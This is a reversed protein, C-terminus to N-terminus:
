RTWRTGERTDELQIGADKLQDRIEDARAFNKAKKSTNREEVLADIAENSLGNDGISDSNSKNQFWDTPDQNLIGLLEGCALLEAKIIPKENLEAKNLKAAIAHMASIAEATNIDDKLAVMVPHEGPLEFDPAAEVKEGRGLLAYYLTDLTASAQNLVDESFNLPSRYHASLLAFRLVEGRYQKLLERVLRCNGLSKTM